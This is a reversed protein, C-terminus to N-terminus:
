PVAVHYHDTHVFPAQGVVAIIVNQLLIKNLNVCTSGALGVFGIDAIRGNRHEAHPTQWTNKYDFLGGRPLSM